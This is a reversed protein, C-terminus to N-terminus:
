SGGTTILHSIRRCYELALTSVCQDVNKPHLIQAASKTDIDGEFKAAVIHRKITNEVDLVTPKSLREFETDQPLGSLLVRGLFIFRLSPISDLQSLLLNLLHASATEPLFEDLDDIVVWMIRAGAARVLADILHPLLADKLWAASATHYDTASPLGGMEEPKTGCGQILFIAAATAEQPFDRASLRVVTHESATLQAELIELSFSRGTQLEGQVAIVRCRGAVASLVLEQFKERGFVPHKSTPLLALPEVGDIVTTDFGAVAGATAIFSTPIAGNITKQRLDSWGGSQHLAVAEGLDDLVLGGSSGHTSNAAHLLRAKVAKPWYEIAIGTTLKLKAAGPYQYLNVQCPLQASRNRDLPYFGREIGVPHSLFIMAFDLHSDFGETTAEPDFEWAQRQELEHAPSAGVLWDDHVGVRIGNENGVFDFLVELRKATRAQAKTPDTPEVLEKIVHWATLVVQPGILFGTGTAHSPNVRILCIRPIARRFSPLLGADLFGAQPSVLAELQAGAPTRPSFTNAHLANTRALLRVLEPLWGAENAAQLAYLYKQSTDSPPINLANIVMLQDSGHTQALRDYIETFQVHSMIIMAAILPYNPTRNQVEAKVDM